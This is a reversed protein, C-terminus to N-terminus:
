QDWPARKEPPPAGDNNRKRMRLGGIRATGDRSDSFLEVHPLKFYRILGAGAALGGIHAWWAVNSEGPAFANILQLGVWVGLIVYSALRLPLIGFAIVLVRVKPYLMLYAGIVGSVAGSAGITPTTSTPDAAIQLLNAAIGCLLYFLLFRGHGMADEINDGFVWLFLMNGILHMWGGHLFQSTIMTVPGPAGVLDPPLSGQGTVIAPVMGFSLILRQLSEGDLSLEFLFVVINAAILGITVYHYKIWQRKNSDHLPIFVM